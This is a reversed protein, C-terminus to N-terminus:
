LDIRFRYWMIEFLFGNLLDAMGNFHYDIWQLLKTYGTKIAGPNSVTFDTRINEDYCIGVKAEAGEPCTICLLGDQVTYTSGETGEFVIQVNDMTIKENAPYVYLEFRQHEEDAYWYDYVFNGSDDMALLYQPQQKPMGACYYAEIETLGPDDGVTGTIVVSFAHVAREPFLISTGGEVATQSGFDIKTGDDFLIYGDTIGSGPVANDYLRIEDMWRVEPLQVDIRDVHLVGGSLTKETIDASDVIKFDQFLSVQEQGVTMIADYLISGTEREWFVKDGNLVKGSQLCAYQSVYSRFSRYVTNQSIFRSLNDQGLPIRIREDWNYHMGTRAWVLDEPKQTSLLNLGDFFDDEAEWATSYCFGKMITPRYAPEERLIHGMAEDFFLSLARHDPHTDTDVCYIVDPQKQLIVTKISNLYNERTYDCEQFCAHAQTGYTSASGHLSTWIDTDDLSNYIHSVMEGEVMKAQWQDGYGLFIIDEEKVGIDTLAAVAESFRRNATVNYDGNTSFVVYVRSGNQTYEEILGGCLNIDDDQHPVLIMVDKDAFFPGHVNSKEGEAGTTTQMLLCAGVALMSLLLLCLIKLVRKVVANLVLSKKWFVGVLVEAAVFGACIIVVLKLLRSYLHIDLTCFLVALHVALIIGVGMGLYMARAILQASRCKQKM